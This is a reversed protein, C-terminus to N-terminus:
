LNSNDIGQFLYYTIILIIIFSFVASISNSIGLASKEPTIFSEMNILSGVNTMIIIKAILPYVINTIINTVLDKFATAIAMAAAFTMVTGTKTNMFKKIKEVFTIPKTNPVPPVPGPTSPDNYFQPNYMDM